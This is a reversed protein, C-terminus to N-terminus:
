ATVGRERLAAIEDTSYGHAALIAATDAGALPSTGRQSGSELRPAGPINPIPMKMDMGPQELYSFLGTAQVHPDNLVDLSQNAVSHMVGYETFRQQWHANPKTRM